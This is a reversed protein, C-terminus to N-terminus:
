ALPSLPLPAHVRANPSHALSAHPRARAVRKVRASRSAAAPTPATPPPPSPLASAGGFPQAPDSRPHCSRRVCQAEHTARRRARSPRQRWARGTHARDAGANSKAVPRLSDFRVAANHPSRLQAIVCLFPAFGDPALLPPLSHAPVVNHLLLLHAHLPSASSSSFCSCVFFLLVRFGLSPDCAYARLAPFAGRRRTAFRTSCSHRAAAPTTPLALTRARPLPSLSHAPSPPAASLCAPLM